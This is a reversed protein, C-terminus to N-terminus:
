RADLLAAQVERRLLKGTETYPLREVIRVVGPTKSSRLTERAFRNM